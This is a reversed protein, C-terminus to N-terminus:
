LDSAHSAEERRADLDRYCSKRGERARQLLTRMQRIFLDREEEPLAELLWDYYADELAIVDEQVQMAGETAQILKARGDKPDPTRTVYGREELGSVLRTVAAKDVGLHEVLQQQSMIQHHAVHRLTQIQSPNLELNRTRRAVYGQALRNIRRFCIGIENM